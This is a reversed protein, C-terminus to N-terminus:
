LPALVKFSFGFVSYQVMAEEVGVELRRCKASEIWRWSAVVVRIARTFPHCRGLFGKM